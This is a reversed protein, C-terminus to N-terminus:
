LERGLFVIAKGSTELRGREAFGLREYFSVNRVGLGTVVHVGALGAARVSGAFAEVLRSGTGAGRGSAVLNVHLHAPYRATLEAFMAFYGIDNFRPAKAPDDLSGALYGTIRQEPKAGALAVFVLGPDHEFYRGLWRELFACKAAATAFTQTGSAAFFIREIDTRAQQQDRLDLWRVISVTGAGAVPPTMGSSRKCGSLDTWSWRRDARYTGPGAHRAELASVHHISVLLRRLSAARPEAKWANM